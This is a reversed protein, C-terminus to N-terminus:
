SWNIAVGPGPDACVTASDFRRAMTGDDVPELQLLHQLQCARCPRLPPYGSPASTTVARVVDGARICYGLRPVNNKPAPPQGSNWAGTFAALRTSPKRAAIVIQVVRVGAIANELGRRWHRGSRHTQGYSTGATRRVCRGPSPIASLPRRDPEARRHTGRLANRRDAAQWRRSRCAGAPENMGDGTIPPRGGLGVLNTYEEGLSRAESRARANNGARRMETIARMRRLADRRMERVEDSDAGPVIPVKKIDEATIDAGMAATTALHFLDNRYSTM